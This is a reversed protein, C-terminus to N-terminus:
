KLRKFQYWTESPTKMQAEKMQITVESSEIVEEVPATVGEQTGEITIQTKQVSVMTESPKEMQAEKMQATVESSVIMEEAPAAVGEQTGEMTMETTQVSTLTSTPRTMAATVTEKGTEEPSLSLVEATTPEASIMETTTTAKQLQVQMHLPAGVEATTTQLLTMTEPTVIDMHTGEIVDSIVESTNKTMQTGIQMQTQSTQAHRVLQMETKESSVTETIVEPLTGQIVEFSMEPFIVTYIYDHKM